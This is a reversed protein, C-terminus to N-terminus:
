KSIAKCIKEATKPGIGEIMTLDEPVADKLEDIDMYGAAKLQQAVKKSVGPIDEFDNIPAAASEEVKEESPTEETATEEVPLDEEIQEAEAEESPTDEAPADEEKSEEKKSGGFFMAKIKNLFSKEEEKPPDEESPTEEVESPEGEEKEEEPAEEAPAEEKPPEEAPAEEKIEEPPEEEKVEEKAPEEVVEEEVPAEEPESTETEEKVEEKVEEPKEEKKGGFFGSIADMMRQIFSREDKPGDEVEEVVEATAEEPEEVGYKEVHDKVANIIAVSMKPGIGKITVLDEDTKENFSEFSDYGNELLASIVNQSIRPVTELVEKLGPRVTELDMKKEEALGMLVKAKAPGVGKFEVFYEETGEILKKWSNLGADYLSTAFEEKIKGTSTLFEVMEVKKVQISRDITEEVTVETEESMRIVTFPDWHLPFIPGPSLFLVIQIIDNQLVLTFYARDHPIEILPAM